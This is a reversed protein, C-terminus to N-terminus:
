DGKVIQNDKKNMNSNNDKVFYFTIVVMFVTIFDNGEIKGAISLYAFVITLVITVFIKVNLLAAISEKILNTMSM